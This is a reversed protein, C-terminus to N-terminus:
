SSQKELPQYRLPRTRARKLWAVDEADEVRELLEEYDKIPIIVSVPKGKRTVIEPEPMTAKMPSIMGDQGQFTFGAIRVKVKVVGMFNTCHLGHRNAQGNKAATRGTIASIQFGIFGADENIRAEAQALDALAQGGDAARRFIQSADQYRVFMRVMDLSQNLEAGLEMDRNIAVSRSLLAEFILQANLKVAAEKAGPVTKLHAIDGNFREVDGM